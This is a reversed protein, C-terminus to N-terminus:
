HLRVCACAGWRDADIDVIEQARYPTVTSICQVLVSNHNTVDRREKRLMNNFLFNCGLHM